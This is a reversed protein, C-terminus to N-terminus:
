HTHQSQIAKLFLTNNLDIEPELVSYLNGNENVVFKSGMKAIVDFHRNKTRDTLWTIIPSQENSKALVVPQMLLIKSKSYYITLVDEISKDLNNEFLAVVKVKSSLSDAFDILERNKRLSSDNGIVVFLLKIGQYKQLQVERGYSDKISLEYISQSFLANGAFLFIFFVIIKKFERKM